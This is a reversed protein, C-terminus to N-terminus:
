GQDGASARKRLMLGAVVMMLVAFAALLRQGNVMKGLTSGLFAGAVGTAAFLLACRWVM